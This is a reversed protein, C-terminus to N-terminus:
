CEQGTLERIRKRVLARRWDGRVLGERLFGDLVQRSTKTRCRRLEREVRHRARFPTKLIVDLDVAEGYIKM